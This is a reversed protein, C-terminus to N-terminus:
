KSRRKLEPVPDYGCGGLPNCSAIRKFALCLGKFSGYKSIADIAYNSCTPIYNCMSHSASPTKQYCKIFFILLKKLVIVM